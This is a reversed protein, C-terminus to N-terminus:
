VIKQILILIEFLLIKSYSVNRNQFNLNLNLNSSKFTSRGFKRFESCYSIFM